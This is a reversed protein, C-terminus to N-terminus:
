KPEKQVLIGEFIAWFTAMYKPYKQLLIRQLIAWDPCVSSSLSRGVVAQGDINSIFEKNGFQSACHSWIFIALNRYFNGLFPKM